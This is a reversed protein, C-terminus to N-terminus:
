SFRYRRTTNSRSAPNTNAKGCYGSYNSVNLVGDYGKADQSHISSPGCVRRPSYIFNQGDLAVSEGAFFQHEKRRNEAFFQYEKRRNQHGSRKPYQEPETKQQVRRALPTVYLSYSSEYTETNLHVNETTVCYAETSSDTLLLLWAYM